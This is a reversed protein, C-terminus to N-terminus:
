LNKEPSLEIKKAFLPPEPSKLRDDSFRFGYNNLSKRMLYQKKQIDYDVQNNESKEHNQETMFNIIIQEIDRTQNNIESM